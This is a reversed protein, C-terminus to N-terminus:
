IAEGWFYISGTDFNGQCPEPLTLKFTLAMEAGPALINATYYPGVKQQQIIEYGDYFPHPNNFGIGYGINVYGEGDRNRAISGSRTGVQLDNVTSYAGNTAFYRFNDLTLQNTEPCRAGSSSSDYFDTGSIFMDMLVGSSHDADNGVLMTESYASTGPRVGDHGDASRFDMSGEIDLAVVPNFFWYENEDMMGTNGDSDEAVANIWFEGYMSEPTEVTLTCSFMDMISSNCVSINEEDIRANCSSINTTENCGIRLCNVEIGNNGPSVAEEVQYTYSVCVNAGSMTGVGGNFNALGGIEASGFSSAPIILNEGPSNAKYISLNNGAFNTTSSNMFDLSRGSTGGFDTVNDYKGVSGSVDFGSNILAINKEPFNVSVNGGTYEITFNAGSNPDVNEFTANIEIFESGNVNVKVLTGLSTNFKPVVLNHTWPVFLKGTSDCYSVTKNVKEIVPRKSGGRTDGVAGFVDINQDVKNKDMVLVDWQIQEGEFAYNNIREVLENTVTWTNGFAACDAPTTLSPVTCVGDVWVAGGATCATENTYYTAICIAPTIRGPETNDDYVIRHDCMWVKPSFDEVNIRPNISGGSNVALIYPIEFAFAAFAIIIILFLGCLARKKNIM